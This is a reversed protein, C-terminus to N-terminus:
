FIERAHIESPYIGQVLTISCSGEIHGYWHDVQFGYAIGNARLETKVWYMVHANGQNPCSVEITKPQFLANIQATYLLADKPEGLVHSSWYHVDSTIRENKHDREFSAADINNILHIKETVAVPPGMPALRGQVRAQPVGGSVPVSTCPVATIPSLLLSAVAM